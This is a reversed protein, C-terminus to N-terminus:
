QPASTDSVAAPAAPATTLSEVYKMAKRFRRHLKAPDPIVSNMSMFLMDQVSEVAFAKRVLDEELTEEDGSEVDSDHNEEHFDKALDLALESATKKSKKALDTARVLAAEIYEGRLWELLIDRQAVTIDNLQARLDAVRDKKKNDQIMTLLFFPMIVLACTQDAPAVRVRVDSAKLDEHARDADIPLSNFLIVSLAQRCMESWHLRYMKRGNSKGYLAQLYHMVPEIFAHIQDKHLGFYAQQLTKRVAREVTFSPSALSPKTAVEAVIAPSPDM